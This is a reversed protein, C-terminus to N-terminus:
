GSSRLLNKLELADHEPYFLPFFSSDSTEYKAIGVLLAYKEAAPLPGTLAVMVFTVFAAAIRVIGSSEFLAM